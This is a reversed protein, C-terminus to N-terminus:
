EQQPIEMKYGVRHITKILSPENDVDIKSRLKTIHVRVTDPSHESEKSWVQDLLDDSSFVQNPHRMLFALLAFEKPLLSIEKGNKTVKRATTDLVLHGLRVVNEGIARPRRGLANIRASLERPHFPKTLYDDAGAEFGEEKDTIANKGTLLIIAANGGGSRYQRCVDVGSLGPLTWDLIVLDFPRSTLREMAQEGSDVVEVTHGDALLWDEVVRSLRHDDEVILITSM